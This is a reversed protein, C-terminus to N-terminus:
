KVANKIAIELSSSDRASIFKLNEFVVDQSIRDLFKKNFPEESVLLLSKIDDSLLAKIHELPVDNFSNKAEIGIKNANIDVYFDCHDKAYITNIQKETVNQLAERVLEEYKIYAALQASIDGPAKSKDLFEVKGGDFTVTRAEVWRQFVSKFLGREVGKLGLLAGLSAVLAAAIEAFPILAWM